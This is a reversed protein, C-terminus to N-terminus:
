LGLREFQEPPCDNEKMLRTLHSMMKKEATEDQLPSEQKPDAAMDFLMTGYKNAKARHAAASKIKMVPCGKTFSFPPAMETEQLEDVRFRSRM